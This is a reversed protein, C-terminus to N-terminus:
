GKEREGEREGRRKRDREGGREREGVRVEEIKVTGEASRWLLSVRCL